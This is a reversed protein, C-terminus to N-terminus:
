NQWRSSLSVGMPAVLLGCFASAMCVSVSLIWSSESVLDLLRATSVRKGRMRLKSRWNNLEAPLVVEDSLQQSFASSPLQLTQLSPYTSALPTHVAVASHTRNAASPRLQRCHLPASTISLPHHLSMFQATLTNELHETHL